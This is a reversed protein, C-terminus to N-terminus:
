QDNLMLIEVISARNYICKYVKHVSYNTVAVDINSRKSKQRDFEWGGSGFLQEFAGCTAM